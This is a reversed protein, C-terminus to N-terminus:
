FCKQNIAEAILKEMEQLSVLVWYYYNDRTKEFKEGTIQQQLKVIKQRKRLNELTKTKFDAVVKLKEDETYDQVYKKTIM